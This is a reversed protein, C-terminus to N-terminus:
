THCLHAYQDSSTLMSPMGPENYLPLNLDRVNIRQLEISSSSGIHKEIVAQVFDTVQQGAQIPRQSGSIIGVKFTKSAM